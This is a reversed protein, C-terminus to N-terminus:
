SPPLLVSKAEPRATSALPSAKTVPVVVEVFKGVTL